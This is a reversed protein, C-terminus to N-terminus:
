APWVKAAVVDSVVVETVRGSRAVVAIRADGDSSVSRVVGVAESHLHEPDDLRFRLSV